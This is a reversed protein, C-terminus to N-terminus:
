NALIPLPAEDGMVRVETIRRLLQSVREGCEMLADIHEIGMVRKFEGVLAATFVLQGVGAGLDVFFGEPAVGYARVVKAYITAFM